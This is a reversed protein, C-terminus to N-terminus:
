PVMPWPIATLAHGARHSRRREKAIGADCARHQKSQPYGATVYVNLVQKNKKEFLEQIRSM